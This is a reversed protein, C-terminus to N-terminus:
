VGRRRRRGGLSFVERGFFSLGERECWFFVGQLRGLVVSFGGVGWGCGFLVWINQPESNRCRTCHPMSHNEDGVLRLRLNKFPPVTTSHLSIISM